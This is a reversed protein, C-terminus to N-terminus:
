PRWDGREIAEAYQDAYDQPQTGPNHRQRLWKAIAAQTADEGKQRGQILGDQRCDCNGAYAQCSKNTCRCSAM